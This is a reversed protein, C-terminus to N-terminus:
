GEGQNTSFGAEKLLAKRSIWGKAYLKMYLELNEGPSVQEDDSFYRRPPHRGLEKDLQGRLDPDLPDRKLQEFLRQLRKESM